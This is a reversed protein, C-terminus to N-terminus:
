SGQTLLGKTRSGRAQEFWTKRERESELLLVGDESRVAARVSPRCTAEGSGLARVVATNSGALDVGTVHDLSM